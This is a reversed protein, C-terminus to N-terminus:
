SCSHAVGRQASHLLPYFHLKSFHEAARVFTRLSNKFSAEFLTRSFPQTPVALTHNTISLASCSLIKRELSIRLTKSLSSPRERFAASKATNKRVSEFPSIPRLSPPCIIRICGECTCALQPILIPYLGHRSRQSIREGGSLKKPPKNLVTALCSISLSDACAPALRSFSYYLELDQKATRM